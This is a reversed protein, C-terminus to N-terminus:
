HKNPLFFPYWEKQTWFM